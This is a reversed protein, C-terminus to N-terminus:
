LSVSEGGNISGMAGWVGFESKGSTVQTPTSGSISSSVSNVTDSVFRVSGDLLGCNVGGSHNSTASSLAWADRWTSYCNPSNPPLVTNFSTWGPASFFANIGRRADYTNATSGSTDDYTYSSNISKRDNSDLHNLCQQPNTSLTAGINRVNSLAARRDNTQYAVVTESAAITNSTGDSCSAMNKWTYYAFLSRAMVASTSSTNDNIADAVSHVINTRTTQNSDTKSNSDSPCCLTSITGRVSEHGAAHGAWAGTVVRGVIADYRAQQEMFPFLPAIPTWRDGTYAVGSADM